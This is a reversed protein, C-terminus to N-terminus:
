PGCDAQCIEDNGVPAGQLAARVDDLSTRAAGLRGLAKTLTSERLNSDALFDPGEFEALRRNNRAFRGHLSHHNAQAIASLKGAPM